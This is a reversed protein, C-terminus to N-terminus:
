RAKSPEPAQSPGPVADRDRREPEDPRKGSPGTVVDFDFPTM